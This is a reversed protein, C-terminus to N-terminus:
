QRRVVDSNTKEFLLLRYTKFTEFDKVDLGGNFYKRKIKAFKKRYKWQLFKSLIPYNIGFFHGLLNYIPLGANTLFDNVLDLNPATEKTIDIDLIPKLPYEYVLDYFRALKHGGRLVSTGNGDMKFFDCILLYGGDNLLKWSTQLAKELNIYQFSESFLILDYRKETIIEEYASEFIYSKKDLLNRVYKTLLSSASVCDVQYGCEKLRLAFRGTGCGVDLITGVGEPIHSIIFNSYNDQAKPLNLLDVPLDDPWYGYHLHETKLFLKGLILGIELGCERSDIKKPKDM